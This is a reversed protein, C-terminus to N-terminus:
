AIKKFVLLSNAPISVYRYNEGNGLVKGPNLYENDGGYKKHNSNIVEVWKGKPFTIGYDNPYDVDNFNLIRFVESNGDKLHTAHIRSFDHYTTGIVNGSKLAPIKDNM